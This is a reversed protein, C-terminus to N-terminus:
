RQNRKIGSGCVDVRDSFVAWEAESINIFDTEERGHGNGGAGEKM